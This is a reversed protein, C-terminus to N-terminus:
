CKLGGKSKVKKLCKKKIRDYDIVNVGNIIDRVKDFKKFIDETILQKYYERIWDPTNALQLRWDKPIHFEGKNKKEFEDDFKFRDKMEM